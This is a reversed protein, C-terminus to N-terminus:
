VPDPKRWLDEGSQCEAAADDRTAYVGVIGGGHMKLRLARSPQRLWSEWGWPKPWPSESHAEAAADHEHEFVGVAGRSVLKVRRARTSRSLWCEWRMWPARVWVSRAEANAHEDRDELDAATVEVASATPASEIELVPHCWWYLVDHRGKVHTMRLNDIAWKGINYWLHPGCCNKPMFQAHCYIESIGRMRNLWKVLDQAAKIQQYPPTPLSAGPPASLIQELSPYSGVIEIDIAQADTGVSNLAQEVPRLHVVRGDQMVAYHAVVDDLRPVSPTLFGTQHLMVARVSAPNRRAAADCRSFICRRGEIGGGRSHTVGATHATRDIMNM